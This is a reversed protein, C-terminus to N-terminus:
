TAGGQVQITLKISGDTLPLESVTHGQRRAEIKTKEVVYCQLLKHLEEPNGWRGGYNDYKIAGSALDCFM